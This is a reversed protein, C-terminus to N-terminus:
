TVWQIEVTIRNIIWRKGRGAIQFHRGPVLVVDDDDAPPQDSQAERPGQRFGAERQREDLGLRM